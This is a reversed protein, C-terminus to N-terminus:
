SQNAVFDPLSQDSVGPSLARCTVLRPIGHEGSGLLVPLGTLERQGRFIASLSAHDRNTRVLSARPKVPGDRIDNKRM